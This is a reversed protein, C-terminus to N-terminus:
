SCDLGHPSFGHPLPASHTGKNNPLYLHRHKGPKSPCFQSFFM